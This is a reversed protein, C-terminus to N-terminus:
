TSQFSMCSLFSKSTKCYYLRVYKLILICSTGDFIPYEIYYVHRHEDLKWDDTPFSACKHEETIEKNTFLIHLSM